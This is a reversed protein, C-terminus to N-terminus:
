RLMARLQAWSPLPAAPPMDDIEYRCVWNGTVADVQMIQLIAETSDADRPATVKQILQHLEIVFDPSMRRDFNGEAEDDFSLSYFFADGRTAIDIIDFVDSDRMQSPAITFNATLNHKALLATFLPLEEKTVLRTDINSCELSTNISIQTELLSESVTSAM